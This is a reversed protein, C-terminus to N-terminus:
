YFYLRSEMARVNALTVKRLLSGLDCEQHPEASDKNEAAKAVAEVCNTLVWVLLGPVCDDRDEQRMYGGMRKGSCSAIWLLAGMSLHHSTRQTKRQMSLAADGGGDCSPTAFM